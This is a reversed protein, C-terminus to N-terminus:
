YYKFLGFDTLFLSWFYCHPSSGTLARPFQDITLDSEYISQLPFIYYSVKRIILKHLVFLSMGSLVYIKFPTVNLM